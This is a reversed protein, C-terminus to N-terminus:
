EMMPNHTGTHFWAYGRGLIKVNLQWRDVYTQNVTTIELKGLTSPKIQKVIEANFFWIM